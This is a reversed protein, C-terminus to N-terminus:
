GKVGGQTIGGILHRQLAFFLAMVPLSVLVAGAAFHGWETSYDGVYHNLLVPLTYSQPRSMFTAALIFENWASLFSFLATVALAPRALPLAVRYFADFRSGGDLMVAEELERPLSDFFGKLMFVCFPIATTAYCLVLGALHDLLHLKELIIYLPITTVVGPFMQAFLFVRLSTKRGPFRFRSLAYAASCSLAVGVVTVAASVVVSNLLQRFFLLHGEADRTGLVAAFNALSFETPWPTPTLAFSQSPSLAMKLVWLVPYLTVLTATFLILHLLLTRLTRM